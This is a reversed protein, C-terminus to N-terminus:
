KSGPSLATPVVTLIRWRAAAGTPRRTLPSASTVSSSPPCISNVTRAVSPSLSIPMPECELTTMWTALNTRRSSHAVRLVVEAITGPLPYTRGGMSTTSSLEAAFPEAHHLRGKETAEATANWHM